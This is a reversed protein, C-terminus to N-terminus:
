SALLQVLPPRMPSQGQTLSCLGAALRSNPLCEWRTLRGNAIFFESGNVGNIYARCTLVDSWTAGDDDSWKFTVTDRMAGINM